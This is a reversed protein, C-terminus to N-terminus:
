RSWTPQSVKGMNSIITKKTENEVHLIVLANNHVYLLHRGDAGWCPDSGPGILRTGGQALDTIVVSLKGSQRVTSAIHVGDPSWNPKGVYQYALSLPSPTGGTSPITYLQPKGNPNALFAIRKGDPSWTPSSETWPTNTLRRGGLGGPNTVYLEPNGVFSMTMALREGDPSFAAGSNTGPANVIRRRGNNRLDIMYIDPYGSVYSTFALFVADNRLSPSVCISQDKTIQRVNAGDADCVYIEKHGSADSIFAIQTMGVGPRGFIVSQIEDSFQLTNLRLSPHSYTESFLVKGSPDLVTGKIKGGSANAQIKFTQPGPQIIFDETEQLLERLSTMATAGLSGTFEQIEVRAPAAVTEPAAHSQMMLALSVAAHMLTLTTRRPMSIIPHTSVVGM